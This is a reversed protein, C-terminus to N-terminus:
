GEALPPAAELLEVVNGTGHEHETGKLCTKLKELGYRYRSAATNPPCGTLEAIAEFTHGHWIKLVIVERQEVPLRRLCKMATRELPSEGAAREFWRECELEAVMRRWLSRRHNLARNRFARLCYREPADPPAALALLAVFTDQLVDEAESRGLGLARGYLLLGAARAEYLERLWPAANPESASM